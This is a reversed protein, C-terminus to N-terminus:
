AESLVDFHITDGDVRINGINLGSDNKNWMRTSPNTAASLAVGEVDQFLDGSNGVNVNNELESLGDAQLLACQYHWLATNAQWENSGLRDCHYIALGNSLAHADLGHKIRNEILFYESPRDTPFYHVTHYDGQRTSYAGPTSIDVINPCWDVLDRLYACIPAPTRGHNLHNGSSMLCYRGMGHSKGLDWDRRGYDYLDPFRCLMHGSEHAFTGITLSNPTSGLASIQYFHTRFNGHQWDLVHNHPWLKDKYVTKGAYMFSVADLIGENQSDFEQLTQAVQSDSIAETLAEEALLNKIYHDRKESLTIPGVVVNSYDLKGSSMLDYYGRVSTYNGNATYTEANLMASVDDATVSTRVDQFDVLITLGKVTGQTVQRGNLLGDNLGLTEDLSPLPPPQSAQFREQFQAQLSVKGEQLHMPLGDPVTQDIGIGSSRLSDGDPEAYCYIGLSEDYLVTYGDHTERYAYFEDGFTALEVDPGEAQSYTQVEGFLASM